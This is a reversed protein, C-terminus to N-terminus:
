LVSNGNSCTTNPPNSHYIKLLDCGTNYLSRAVKYDRHIVKSAIHKINLGDLLHKKLIIRMDIERVGDGDIGVNIERMIDLRLMDYERKLGDIEVSIAAAETMKRQVQNVSRVKADGISDYRVSKVSTCIEKDIKLEAIRKPISRYRNIKEELTM